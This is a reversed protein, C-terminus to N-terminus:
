KWAKQPVATGPHYVSYAFGGESNSSHNHITNGGGSGNGAFDFIPYDNAVQGVLRPIEAIPVVTDFKDVSGGDQTAEVSFWQFRIHTSCTIRTYKRDTISVTDLQDQKLKWIKAPDYAVSTVGNVTSSLTQGKVINSWFTLMVSGGALNYAAVPNICEYLPKCEATIGSLSCPVFPAVKTDPVYNPYFHQYKLMRYLTTETSAYSHITTGARNKLELPYTKGFDNYFMFVDGSPLIVPSLPKGIAYM